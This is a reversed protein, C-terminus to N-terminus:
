NYAQSFKLKWASVEGVSQGRVSKLEAWCRM